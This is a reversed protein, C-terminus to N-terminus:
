VLITNQVDNRSFSSHIINSRASTTLLKFLDALFLIIVFIIDIYIIMFVVRYIKIGIESSGFLCYKVVSEFFRHFDNNIQLALRAFTFPHIFYKIIRTCIICRSVHIPMTAFVTPRILFRNKIFVNFYSYM